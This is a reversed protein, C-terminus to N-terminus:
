ANPDILIKIESPNRALSDFAAETNALPQRSTILRAAKGPHAAIM